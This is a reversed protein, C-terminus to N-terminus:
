VEEYYYKQTLCKPARHIYWSKDKIFLLVNRFKMTKSIIHVASKKFIFICLNELESSCENDFITVIIRIIEFM